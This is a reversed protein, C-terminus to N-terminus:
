KKLESLLFRAVGDDENSEIVATAIKKLEAVANEVAYKRDAVKFLEIDNIGDGFVVLEDCNLRKKLMVAANAKTSNKPMIELWQSGSYMDKQFVCYHVNRYKEYVTGLKDKSDICLLYFINGQTLETFTGVPRYRVCHKRTELFETMGDTCKDRLFSFKEEGDIFSYVTPFIGDKILKGILATIDGSFRMCVPPAIDHAFGTVAGNYFIPPASTNLGNVAPVATEESRATAFSFLMGRAVLGNIADVTFQSTHQNGCLLTGDLDSLYLTKM